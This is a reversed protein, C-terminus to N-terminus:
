QRGGELILNDVTDLRVSFDPPVVCTADYEEVVLPGSRPAATLAHRNVVPTDHVGLEPGFYAPRSETITEGAGTETAAALGHDDTLTAVARLNVIEVTAEVSRHGYSRLHEDGFRDILDHLTREDITEGRLPISLEYGQGTYRVDASVAVAIAGTDYGEQVLVERVTARLEAVADRLAELNPTEASRLFTRVLQHEIKSHLLGFASFLGAAPPVVVRRIGLMRAMEAGHVPGSGGFACLAFDRPDRGRYTTVAKVSRVMKASAVAHIGYAAELLDLGLPRAVDVDLQERARDIDLRVRGGAIFRPNIYGLVLNADTVTTATGGTGYCVPGPSAGASEPGVQLRGGTDIRVISGGGAGVESIDIAPLKLAYGGGAVLLSSTNIGAGVEYDSTLSIAGGEITSAKATTGGMDLTILNDFGASAALRAAAIVGAAPGSEVIHAPMAAAKDATMVGGNSQMVLLPARLGLQELRQQLRRLYASVIPGVYSNIVATSTREYERIEPLIDASCTIFLDPLRHRLAAAVAHEHTPNAYSHLLCVAVSEADSAGVQALVQELSDPDVPKLATGDAALREELEFRRRRPVLPPPKRYQLDYLEPTRIRRLELVDRFGQTTILCTGVGKGELIANTAVTTGHRVEDVAAASTATELLLEEIGDAIAKGYDGVTSSLKRTRVHGEATQLVIDTFTGGIDVGVRTAGSM